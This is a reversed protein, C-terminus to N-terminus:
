TSQEEAKKDFKRVIHGMAKAVDTVIKLADSIGVDPRHRTYVQAAEKLRGAVILDLEQQWVTM